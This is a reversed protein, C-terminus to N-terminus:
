WGHSSLFLDMRKVFVLQKGSVSTVFVMWVQRSTPFCLWPAIKEDVFRIYVFVLVSVVSGSHQHYQVKLRCLVFTTSRPSFKGEGDRRGSETSTRKEESCSGSTRHAPFKSHTSSFFWMWRRGAGKTWERRRTCRNCWGVRCLHTYQPLYLQTPAYSLRSSDPSLPAYIFFLFYTLSSVLPIVFFASSTQSNSKEGHILTTLM